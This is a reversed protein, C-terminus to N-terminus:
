SSMGATKALALLQDGINGSTVITDGQGVAATVQPLVVYIQRLEQHTVGYHGLKIADWNVVRGGKGDSVLFEDKADGSGDDKKCSEPLGYTDILTKRLAEVQRDFRAGEAKGRSAQIEVDYEALRVSERKDQHRETLEAEETSVVRVEVGFNNRLREQLDDFYRDQFIKGDLNNITIESTDLSEFRLNALIARVSDAIVSRIREFRDGSDSMEYIFVHPNIVVIDVSMDVKISTQDLLELRIPGTDGNPKFISKLTVKAKASPVIYAQDIGWLELFFGGPQISGGGKTGYFGRRQLLNSTRPDTFIDEDPQQGFRSYVVRSNDDILQVGSGLYLGLLVSVSTVLRNDTLSGGWGFVTAALLGFIIRFLMLKGRTFTWFTGM